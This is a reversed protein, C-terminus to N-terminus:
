AERGGARAKGSSIDVILYINTTLNVNSELNNGGRRLYCSVVNEDSRRTQIENSVRFKARLIADAFTFTCIESNTPTVCLALSSKRIGKGGLAM